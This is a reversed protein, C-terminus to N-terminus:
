GRTTKLRRPVGRVGRTWPTQRRLGFRRTDGFSEVKVPTTFEKADDDNEPGAGFGACSPSSLEVALATSLATKAQLKAVNENTIYGQQSAGSLSHCEFLYTM